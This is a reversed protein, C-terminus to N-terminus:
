VPPIKAAIILLLYWTTTKIGISGPEGKPITWRRGTELSIGSLACVGERGYPSSDFLHAIEYPEPARYGKDIPRRFPEDLNQFFGEPASQYEDLLRLRMENLSGGREETLAPVQATLLLILYWTLPEIPRANTGKELMNRKLANAKKNYGIMEGIVDVGFKEVVERVQSPTPQQFDKDFSRKLHRPRKLFYEKRSQPSLGSMILKKKEDILLSQCNANMSVM